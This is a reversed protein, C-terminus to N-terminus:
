KGVFINEKVPIQFQKAVAGYAAELNTKLFSNERPDWDTFVIFHVTQVEALKIKLEKEVDAAVKRAQAIASAEQESTSKGYQLVAPKTAPRKDAAESALALSLVVVFIWGYRM